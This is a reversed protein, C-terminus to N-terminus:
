LPKHFMKGSALYHLLWVPREDRRSLARSARALVQRRSPKALIGYFMLSSGLLCLFIGFGLFPYFVKPMEAKFVINGSLSVPYAEENLIELYLWRADAVINNTVNINTANFALREVICTGSYNLFIKLWSAEYYPYPGWTPIEKPVVRGVVVRVPGGFATLNLELFWAPIEGREFLKRFNINPGSVREFFLIGYTANKNPVLTFHEKPKWEDLKEEEFRKENVLFGVVVGLILILLGVVVM